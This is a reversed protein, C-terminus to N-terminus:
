KTGHKKYPGTERKSYLVEFAAIMYKRTEAPEIIRDVYGRRAAGDVGSQKKEYEAAKQALEEAKADPYMIKAAMQADMASIKADPWAYVFDAGISKSNMVIGASGYANGVILNVKPVTAMSLAYVLAGADKALNREACVTAKFGEVNTLSLVPIEFADCFCVFEAAKKCGRASLVPAFEELKNGDMDNIETSNAIAGVTMGNLRIFGTVMERAYEAKTEFFIHEDSIESLIYRTDGKLGELNQCVRNLSDSCDETLGTDRNNSPLLCILERIKTFIEEESGIGDVIGTEKSQYEASATDCKEVHNGDLTNPANVFLKAKEKELFSFDSMAPVFALGGGCTGFVATIQPVVGSAQTQKLFLKGLGELADVSEQLRVGGCDLFGIVPAGMKMASDYVEAIKKSHMEGITGNLVSVDQSYVFVLNGDILGHGTIVGDSPTEAANLNFDTSRATVLAGVEMFSNEDLLRTLRTRALGEERNSM